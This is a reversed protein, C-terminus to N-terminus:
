VSDAMPFANGMISTVGFIYREPSIRLAPPIRHTVLACLVYVVVVVPSLRDSAIEDECFMQDREQMAFALITPFLTLARRAYAM